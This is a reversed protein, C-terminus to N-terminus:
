INGKGNEAKDIYVAVLEPPNNIRLTPYGSAGLGRSIIMTTQGDTFEGQMYKPFLGQGHVYFGGIKPLRIQGAHTHGALILDINRNRCLDYIEPRHSLLLNFGALNKFGKTFAKIDTSQYSLDDVGAINVTTGRIEMPRMENKLVTAGGKRLAGCIKDDHMQEHNGTVFFTPAIASLGEALHFTYPVAVYKQRERAVIDGTIAIIDPKVAKVKKFLQANGEDFEKEHLDSLHAIRVEGGAKESFLGYKVTQIKSNNFM